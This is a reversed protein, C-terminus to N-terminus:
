ADSVPLHYTRSIDTKVVVKQLIAICWTCKTLLADVFEILRVRIDEDIKQGRPGATNADIEVSRISNDDKVRVEVWM